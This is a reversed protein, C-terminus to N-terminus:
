CAGHLIQHSLLPLEKPVRKCLLSSLTQPTFLLVHQYSTSQKYKPCHITHIQSHYHQGVKKTCGHAVEQLETSNSNLAKYLVNFIKERKNSIYHCAALAGAIM